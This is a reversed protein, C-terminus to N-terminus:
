VSVAEAMPRATVDAVAQRLYRVVDAASYHDRGALVRSLFNLDDGATLLPLEEGWSQMQGMGIDAMLANCLCKKGVTDAAM